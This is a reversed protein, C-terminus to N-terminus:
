MLGRLPRGNYFQGLSIGALAFIAAVVPDPYDGAREDNKPIFFEQHRFLKVIISETM